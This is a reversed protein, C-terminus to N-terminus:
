GSVKGAVSGGGEVRECDGAESEPEEPLGLQENKPPKKRPHRCCNERQFGGQFGSNERMWAGFGRDPRLDMHIINM